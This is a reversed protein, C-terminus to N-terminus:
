SSQRSRLALAGVGAFHALRALERQKDPPVLELVKVQSQHWAADAM